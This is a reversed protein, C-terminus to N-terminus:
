RDRIQHTSSTCLIDHQNITLMSPGISRYTCQNLHIRTCQLELHTFSHHKMLTESTQKIHL